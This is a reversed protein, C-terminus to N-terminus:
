LLAYGSLFLRSDNLIFSFGNHDLKFSPLPKAAAISDFLYFFICFNYYMVHAPLPHITKHGLTLLLSLSPPSFKKFFDRLTFNTFSGM